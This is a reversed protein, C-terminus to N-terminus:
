RSFTITKQFRIKKATLFKLTEACTKGFYCTNYRLVVNEQINAAICIKSLIPKKGNIEQAIEIFSILLHAFNRQFIDFFLIRWKQCAGHM